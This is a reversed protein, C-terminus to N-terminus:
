ILTLLEEFDEYISIYPFFDYVTLHTQARIVAMSM